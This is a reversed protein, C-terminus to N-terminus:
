SKLGVLEDIVSYKLGDPIPRQDSGHTVVRVKGRVIVREFASMPIRDLRVPMSFMRVYDRLFESKFGVKFRGFKKPREMLKSANYSKPLQVTDFYETGMEIITFRLVLKPARGFMVATEHFDYRLDYVGPKVLPAPAGELAAYPAKVASEPGDM